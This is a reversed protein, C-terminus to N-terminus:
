GQERSAAFKLESMKELAFGYENLQYEMGEMFDLRNNRIDAVLLYGADLKILFSREGANGIVKGAQAIGDFTAAEVAIYPYKLADTLKGVTICYDLFLEWSGKLEVGRLGYLTNEGTLKDSPATRYSFLANADPCNQETELKMEEDIRDEVPVFVTLREMKSSYAMLVEKQGANKHLMEAADMLMLVTTGFVELHEREAANAEDTAFGALSLGLEGIERASFTWKDGANLKELNM